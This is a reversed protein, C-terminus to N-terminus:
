GIPDASAARPAVVAMIVACVLMAATPALWGGTLGALGGVALPGLAAFSYAVCQVMGSVHRGVQPDAPRSAILTMSLGIGAGQVLGGVVAWLLWAQPLVFLGAFYVIWGMAIAVALRQASGVRRILYPVLLTGVIGLLHFITLANGTAVQSLGGTQTLQDPTWTSASYFLLSQMGFFLALWWAGPKVWAHWWSIETDGVDSVPAAATQYDGSGMRFRHFLWALVAAVVLLAPLSVSWRWGAVGAVPVALFATLGQGLGYAAITAAMIQPVYPGAERRVLVPMFVNGVTIAAGVLLTGFLFGVSGLWPRVAILLGLALLSVLIIRNVGVWHGLAPLLPSLVAFAILPLATVLGAALPSLSLDAAINSLLPPIGTIPGRLTLGILVAAITLTVLGPVRPSASPTM